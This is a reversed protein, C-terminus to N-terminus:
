IHVGEMGTLKRFLKGALSGVEKNYSQSRCAGFVQEAPRNEGMEKYLLTTRM